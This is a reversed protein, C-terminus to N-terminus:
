MGKAGSGGGKGFRMLSTASLAPVFSIVLWTLVVAWFVRKDM